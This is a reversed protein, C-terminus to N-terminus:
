RLQDLQQVQAPSLKTCGKVPKGNWDQWYWLLGKTNYAYPHSGFPLWGKALEVQNNNLQIKNLM